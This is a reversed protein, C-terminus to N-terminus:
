FNRQTKRRVLELTQRRFKIPKIRNFCTINQRGATSQFLTM